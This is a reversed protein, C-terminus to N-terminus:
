LGVWQRLLPLADEAHEVAWELLKESVKEVAKAPLNRLAKAISSRETEDVQPLAEVRSALLEAWQAADIRVVITNLIASLGGDDAIFDLGKHTIVHENQPRFNSRGIAASRRYGSQILEHGALYQTNVLLARPDINPNGLADPLSYTGEPYKSALAELIQRQLARDLLSKVRTEPNSEM